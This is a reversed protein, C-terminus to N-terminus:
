KRGEHPAGYTRPSLDNLGGLECVHHRSHTVDNGIGMIYLKCKPIGGGRIKERAALKRPQRKNGNRQVRVNNIAGLTCETIIGGSAGGVEQVVHWHWHAAVVQQDDVIEENMAPTTTNRLAQVVRGRTVHFGKRPHNLKRPQGRDGRVVVEDVKHAGGRGM